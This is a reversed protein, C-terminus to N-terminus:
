IEENFPDKVPKFATHKVGTISLYENGLGGVFGLIGAFPLCAYEEHVLNPQLQFRKSDEVDLLGFILGYILGMIISMILVWFIQIQSEVVTKAYSSQCLGILYNMLDIFGFVIAFNLTIGLIIYVPVKSLASFKRYWEHELLSISILGSIIILASFCLLFPKRNSYVDESSM